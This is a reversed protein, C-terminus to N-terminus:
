AEAIELMDGTQFPIAQFIIIILLIFIVGILVAPRGESKTQKYKEKRNEKKKYFKGLNIFHASM